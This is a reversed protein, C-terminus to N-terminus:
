GKVLKLFTGKTDAQIKSELELYVDLLKNGAETLDSGHAGDRNLLQMGLATETDKMIRWAKSYAMGMSKAAAYLSGKERVGVCLKAIGLGFVSNSENSPNEISIRVCAVLPSFDEM